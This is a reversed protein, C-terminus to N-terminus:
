SKLIIRSFFIVSFPRYWSTKDNVRLDTGVFIGPHVPNIVVQGFPVSVSESAFAVNLTKPKWQSYLSAQAVIGIIMAALMVKLNQKTKMRKDNQTLNKTL